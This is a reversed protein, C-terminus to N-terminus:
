ALPFRVGIRVPCWLCVLLPSVVLIAVLSSPVATTLRPLFHIIVMTLLVLGVLMYLQAGELWAVDIETDFHFHYRHLRPRHNRTEFQLGPDGCVHAAESISAMLERAKVTQKVKGTTRATLSWDEDRDVAELFANTVRVSNNSNQGSVTAYAESNWNTDYTPFEIESYGQEALQLVRRILNEPVLARRAERVGDATRRFGDANAEDFGRGGILTVKGLPM